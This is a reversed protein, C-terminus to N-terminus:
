LAKISHCCKKFKLGSGCPCSANRETKELRQWYNYHPHSREKHLRKKIQMLKPVAHEFFAKYGECFYASNIDNGDLSLRYKPCDGRCLSKWQCGDCRDDLIMKRNIFKDLLESKSMNEFTDNNINGLKWEPDVFFDCPYISGDHEVVLNAACKPAFYCSPSHYEVFAILMEDFLRVYFEPYGDNYWLDFVEILFEGYEEPTPSYDAIKGDIAEVCPIFQMYSSGHERFYKVLETGCKVNSKTIVTLTNFTVGKEKLMEMKKTVLHHTGKKGRDLRNQDHIDEPGDVSLGVLINNKVFLDAWEEDLLLGNTQLAISCQQNPRKYEKTMEVVKKFFDLGCLTPEGGQFGLSAMNGAALFYQKLVNRATEESMRHINTEKFLEKKEFYFCYRCAINCDPGAPKILLSNIQACM